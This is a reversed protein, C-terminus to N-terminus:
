KACIGLVLRARDIDRQALNCLHESESYAEDGAENILIHGGQILRWLVNTMSLLVSEATDDRPIDDGM